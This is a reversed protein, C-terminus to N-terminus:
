ILIGRQKFDAEVLEYVSRATSEAKVADACTPESWEGPYRAEITWETLASLDDHVDRM